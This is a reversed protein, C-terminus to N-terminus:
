PSVRKRGMPVGPRREWPDPQERRPKNKRTRKLSAPRSRTKSKPTSVPHRMAAGLRGESADKTQSRGCQRESVVRRLLARRRSALPSRRTTEREVTARYSPFARAGPPSTPRSSDARSYRGISVAVRQLPRTAARRPVIRRGASSFRTSTQAERGLAVPWTFPERVSPARHRCFCPTFHVGASPYPVRERARRVIIDVIALAIRIVIQVLLDHSMGRPRRRRSLASATGPQHAGIVTASRVVSARPGHAAHAAHATASLACPLADAWARTCTCPPPHPPICVCVSV